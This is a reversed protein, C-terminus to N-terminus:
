PPTVDIVSRMPVPPSPTIADYLPNDDSTPDPPSPVDSNEIEEAERRAKHLLSELREVTAEAGTIGLARDMSAQNLLAFLTVIGYRKYDSTLLMAERWKKEMLATLIDKRSQGMPLADVSLEAITDGQNMCSDSQEKSRKIHDAIADKFKALDRESLLTAYATKRCKLIDNEFRSYPMFAEFTEHRNLIVVWKLDIKRAKEDGNRQRLQREMSEITHPPEFLWCKRRTQRLVLTVNRADDPISRLENVFNYKDVATASRLEAFANHPAGDPHVTGRLEYERREYTDTTTEADFARLFAIVIGSFIAAVLLAVILGSEQQLAAWLEAARGQYKIASAIAAATALMAVILLSFEAGRKLRQFFTNARRKSAAFREKIKANVSRAGRRLPAIAWGIAFYIAYYTYERFHEGV